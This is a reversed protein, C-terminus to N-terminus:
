SVLHGQELITYLSNNLPCIFQRIRVLFREWIWYDTLIWLLVLFDDQRCVFADLLVLETLNVQRHHYLKDNKRPPVPRDRYAYGHFETQCLSGKGCEFVSGPEQSWPVTPALSGRTNGYQAQVPTREVSCEPFLVGVPVM